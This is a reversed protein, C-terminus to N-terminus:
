EEEMVCWLAESGKIVKWMEVGHRWMVRLM